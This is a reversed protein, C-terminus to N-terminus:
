GLRKTGRTPPGTGPTIASGDGLPVRVNDPAGRPNSMPSIAGGDPFHDPATTASSNGSARRIRHDSPQGHRALVVRMNGLARERSFEDPRSTPNAQRRERTKLGLSTLVFKGDHAARCLTALYGIPNAIPRNKQQAALLRGAWEDLIDQQHTAPANGLCMQALHRENASLSGPLAIAVDTQAERARGHTQDTDETTTTKKYIYSSSRDSKLKQLPKPKLNQLPDTETIASKLKQLQRSSFAFFRREGRELADIAELRRSIPNESEAVDHGAHLSEEITALVAAAVKRVQPHAHRSAQHLFPMYEQDLYLTDALPLPEDHLAYVNGRFRGEGDRVRRCLSLWRTARLIAMARAVTAESGVNATRAIQKYSPFATHGSAIAAIKIVGWIRTDVPQLVPDQFILRPMADHWNGLFLLGDSSADGTSLLRQVSAQIYADLAHTEPRIDQNDREM